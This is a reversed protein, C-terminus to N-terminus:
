IHVQVYSFLGCIVVWLVEIRKKTDNDRVTRSVQNMTDALSHIMEAFMSHSGTYCWAVGKFLM